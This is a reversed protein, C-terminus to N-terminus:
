ARRPSPLRAGLARLAERDSESLDDPKPPVIRVVAFFDGRRSPAGARSETEFGRARIRLRSGSPTGPPATIQATEHGDPPLPVGVKAGLTAEVITLSVDTLVDLGDRRFVNHPLLRVTLILDGTAGARGRHGKGRLRLKAGTDVGRPINVDLTEDEGSRSLTITIAGGDYATEFPVDITHHLDAGKPKARSRPSERDSPRAGAAPGRAGGGGFFEEFISGIDEPDFNVDGPTGGINSWTYTGRPPAGSRAHAGGTYAGHGVRDYTARKETDSLVDYAEQVEAFRAAADSAKNIDPHLERALKRHAARVQDPSATRSISLVEYYDRKKAM